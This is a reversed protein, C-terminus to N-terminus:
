GEKAKKRNSSRDDRLQELEGPALIVRDIRTYVMHGSPGRPECIAGCYICQWTAVEAREFTDFLVYHQKLSARKQCNPCNAVKTGQGTMGNM